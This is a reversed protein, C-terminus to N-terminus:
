VNKAINKIKNTSFNTLDLSTLLECFSFMEEMDEVESIDFHDFSISALNNCHKFM